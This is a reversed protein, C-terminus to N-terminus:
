ASSSQIETPLKVPDTHDEVDEGDDDIKDFVGEIFKTDEDSMSQSQHYQLAEPDAVYEVEGHNERVLSIITDINSRFFEKRPNTKNVQAKVLAKHLTNELTPANQCSIMMHVDFPFPVSADGLERVRDLPELRRTMGIKYVGEGFSGINSIVYVFGAKTLQSQSVAREKAEAEALRAKLSEVEASHEGAATALAKALAAEVAAKERAIRELERQIEREVKQEERIQAKIRSQEERELAARVEKEYEVKLDAVYAHEEDKGIQFGIGRCREIVDLLRQKCAAFNNANLSKSIWKINDQLYRSGIENVKADLEAQTKLQLTHDLGFKQMEIALNRLDRKLWTNECQLESYAVVRGDYEKQEAALKSGRENLEKDITALKEMRERLQSSLSEREMQMSENFNSEKRKIEGESVSQNTRLQECNQNYVKERMSMDQERQLIARRKVDVAAFMAFGGCLFGVIAFLVPIM